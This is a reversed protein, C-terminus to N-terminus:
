KEKPTLDPNIIKHHMLWYIGHAAADPGHSKTHNKPATAGMYKYGLVKAQAKQEVCKVGNKHCWYVLAGIIQLTPVKSWAHASMKHAFIMYEEFILTEPLNTERDSLYDFLDDRKFQHMVVLQGKENFEAVGSTEGPDCAIYGKM